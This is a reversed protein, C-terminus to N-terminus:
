DIRAREHNMGDEVEHHRQCQDGRKPYLPLATPEVLRAAIHVERSSFHGCAHWGQLVSM